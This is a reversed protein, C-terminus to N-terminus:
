KTTSSTNIDKDKKFANTLNLLINKANKTLKDKNEAFYKAINDMNQKFSSSKTSNNSQEKDNNKNENGNQPIDKPTNEIQETTKNTANKKEKHQKHKEDETLHIDEKKHKQKRKHQEYDTNYGNSKKDEKFTESFM